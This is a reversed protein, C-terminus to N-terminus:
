KESISHEVLITVYITGCLKACINGRLCMFHGEHYFITSYIYMHMYVYTIVWDYVICLLGGYAYTVGYNGYKGM